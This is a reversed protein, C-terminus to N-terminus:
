IRLKKHLNELGKLLLADIIIVDVKKVVLLQCCDYPGITDSMHRKALILLKPVHYATMQIIKYCGLARCLNQTLADIV